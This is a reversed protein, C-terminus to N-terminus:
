VYQKPINSYLYSGGVQAGGGIVLSTMLAQSPDVLQNTLVAVTAANVLPNLLAGEVNAMKADKSIHPLVWAHINDAAFAGGMVALANFVNKSMVIGLPSVTGAGYPDYQMSILFGLAGCVAPEIFVQSLKESTNM